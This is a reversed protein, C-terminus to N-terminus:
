KLLFAPNKKTFMIKGIRITAKSFEMVNRKGMSDPSLSVYATKSNKYTSAVVGILWECNGDMDIRIRYSSDGLRQRQAMSNYVALDPTWISDQDVVRADFDLWEKQTATLVIQQNTVNNGNSLGDHSM